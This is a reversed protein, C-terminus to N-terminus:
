APGGGITEIMHVRRDAAQWRFDVTRPPIEVYSLTLHDHDADPSNLTVFATSAQHVQRRMVDVILTADQQALAQASGNIWYQQSGIYFFTLSLLVMTALLGVIILETLTLGREGD